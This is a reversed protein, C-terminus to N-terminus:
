RSSAGIVEGLFNVIQHAARGGPDLDTNYVGISWGRCGGARLASSVLARLEAWSLGGPMGPDHAAGCASFEDGALVDLDVHLWWGPAQAAVRQAAQSGAGAPDAHVDDATLLRVLGAITPVGIERRYNEDRMGLMALASPRLVGARSRLPEPAQTGTLGLLLAIEMNAAEGSTSAEMTTADEHGDIFMLGASGAADALAPVTALLMACDAGYVLPFRGAALAARVRDYLAAVMELLARENVFGFRGREPIGPSVVVDPALVARGALAAALGAERLAAPAHAQGRARGSGDFRVGILDIEGARPLGNGTGEV